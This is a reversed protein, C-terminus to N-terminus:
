LFPLDRVNRQRAPGCTHFADAGHLSGLMACRRTLPPHQGQVARGAAARPCCLTSPAALLPCHPASSTGPTTFTSPSDAASPVPDLRSSRAHGCRLSALTIGTLVALLNPHEPAIPLRIAAVWCWGAFSRFRRERKWARPIRWARKSFGVRQEAGRRRRCGTRGVVVVWVAAHAAAAAAKGGYARRRWVGQRSSGQGGGAGTRRHAGKVGNATQVPM